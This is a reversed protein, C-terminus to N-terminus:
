ADFRLHMSESAYGIFSNTRRRWGAAALRARGAPGSPGCALQIAQSMTPKGM